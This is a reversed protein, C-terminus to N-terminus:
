YIKGTADDDGFIWFKPNRVASFIRVIISNDAAATLYCIDM